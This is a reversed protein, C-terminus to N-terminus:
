GDRRRREWTKQVIHPPVYYPWHHRPKLVPARPGRYVRQGFKWGLRFTARRYSPHAERLFSLLKHGAEVWRQTEQREATANRWARIARAHDDFAREREDYGKWFFFFGGTAVGMVVVIAVWNPV